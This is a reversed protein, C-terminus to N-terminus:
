NAGIIQDFTQAANSAGNMIGTIYSQTAEGPRSLLDLKAEQMRAIFRPDKLTEDFSRRLIALRDAPVGPTTFVSRGVYQLVELLDVLAQDDPSTVLERFSPVSPLEPLKPGFQLLYALRDEGVWDPRQSNWSDWQNTRGSVEGREMAINVENGGAYGGIIKFKTGLLANALKPQMSLASGKGNAGLLVPIRKAEELTAIGTSKFVALVDTMTTVTGVWGFESSRYRVQTPTLAETLVIGASCMAFYTGDKPAVNSVYNAAGVGSANPMNQVVFIPKGPIHRAWHEVLIRSYLDYGGGASTGVIYTLQKGAYFDGFSAANGQSTALCALFGCAFQITRWKRARGRSGTSLILRRRNM